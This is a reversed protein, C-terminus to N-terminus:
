KKCPGKEYDRIRGVCEAELECDYTRGDCGCVEEGPSCAFKIATCDM